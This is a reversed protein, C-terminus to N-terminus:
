LISIGKQQLLAKFRAADDVFFALKTFARKTGYLGSLMAPSHLHLIFNHSEFDGIPSLKRDLGEAPFSKRSEEIHQIQSLPVKAEALLGYPLILQGEEFRILRRPIARIMGTLQLLTYLGIISLVWAATESWISLLFHVGITEVIILGIFTGHMMMSGNKQHYTFANESPTFRSFNLGYYIVAAETAMVTSLRRPFIKSCAAKLSDYFDPSRGKEMRYALVTRRVQYFIWALISLEFIPLAYNRIQTLLSQQDAPLLYSALLFCLILVPSVSLKSIPKHRILWLYLLPITLVFDLTIATALDSQHLAFYPSLVFVSLVGLLLAPLGFPLLYPSIQATTARFKSM